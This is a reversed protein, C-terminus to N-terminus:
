QAASEAETPYVGRLVEEFHEKVREHCDCALRHLADSDTVLLGGRRTDLIGSSKLNGIVRSIYTRGVGLMGALQEQTLPVRHEGTREVAAVLWKATRQEITHAANCAASQFAQAMMCDAYRAFMQRIAPSERKLVELKRADLKLFEGPYQVVCRAYAPLHGESVVGGVAGERGVLLTEVNKGDPLGVSYSLLAPGCPFYVTQVNDGPEYLLDGAAGRWSELYTRLPALDTSRLSQLLNNGPVGQTSTNAM